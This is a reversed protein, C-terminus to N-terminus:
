DSNRPSALTKDNSIQVMRIPRFLQSCYLIKIFFKTDGEGWSTKIKNKGTPTYQNYFLVFFDSKYSWLLTRYNLEGRHPETENTLSTEVFLDCRHHTTRWCNRNIGLCWYGGLFESQDWFMVRM